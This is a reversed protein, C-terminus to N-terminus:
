NPRDFEYDGKMLCFDSRAAASKLDMDRIWWSANLRQRAHDLPQFLHPVWYRTGSDERADLFGCASLADLHPKHTCFFDIFTAGSERAIRDLTRVLAPIADPTAALDVLRVIRQDSDRICEVRYVLLGALGQADRAVLADYHFVPIRGYRWQLYASERAPGLYAPAVKHWYFDDWGVADLKDFSELCSVQIRPDAQQLSAPPSVASVLDKRRELEEPSLLKKFQGGDLVKILRPINSVVVWSLREYLNEAVPTNIGAICADFPSNQQLSYLLQLGLAGRRHEPDVWWASLHTGFRREGYRNFAFPMYAFVGIMRTDKFAAKFTLGGTFRSAYPNNAYQWLLLDRNRYFVHDPRWQEHFFRAALETEDFGIDRIDSKTITQAGNM